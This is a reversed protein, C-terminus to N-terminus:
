QEIEGAKIYYALTETSVGCEKAEKTTFGTASLLAEIKKLADKPKM